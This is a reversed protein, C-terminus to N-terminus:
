RVAEDIVRTPRGQPLSPSAGLLRENFRAAIMRALYLNLYFHM